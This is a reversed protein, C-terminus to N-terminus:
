WPDSYIGVQESKIWALERNVADRGTSLTSVSVLPLVTPFSRLVRNKAEQLAKVTESEMRYTTM